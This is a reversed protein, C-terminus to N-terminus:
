PGSEIVELFQERKSFPNVKAGVKLHCSECLTRGNSLDFRLEPFLAFPKIHDAQLKEGIEGCSQCTYNDREFIKTRWEEYEISNRIKKNIPTIGGKWNHHKSGRKTLGMKSNWEKTHPIAKLKDSLIKISELSLYGKLGINWPKRGRMKEIWEKSKPIGKMKESKRKRLEESQPGFQMGKNWGHGKKLGSLNLKAIHEATRIYIGKPM